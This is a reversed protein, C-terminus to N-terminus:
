VAYKVRRTRAGSRVLEEIVAREIGDVGRTISRGLRGGCDPRGPREYPGSRPYWQLLMNTLLTGSGTASLTHQVSLALLEVEGLARRTTTPVHMEEVVKLGTREDVWPELTPAPREFIADM